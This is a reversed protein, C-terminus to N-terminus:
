RPTLQGAGDGQIWFDWRFNGDSLSFQEKSLTITGTLQAVGGVMVPTDSFQGKVDVGVATGTTDAVAYMYADHIFLGRGQYNGGAWWVVGVRIKTEDCWLYESCVSTWRKPLWMHRDFQSSWDLDWPQLGKPAVFAREGMSISTNSDMLEAVDTVANWVDKFDVNMGKSGDPM